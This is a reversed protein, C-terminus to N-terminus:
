KSNVDILPGFFRGRNRVSPSYSLVREKDRDLVAAGFIFFSLAGALARM